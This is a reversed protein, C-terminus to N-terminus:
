RAAHEPGAGVNVESRLRFDVYPWRHIGREQFTDFILDNIPRIENWAYLGAPPQGELIVTIRIAPEGRADVYLESEMTAIRPATRIPHDEVYALAKEVAGVEEPDAPTGMYRHLTGRGPFLRADYPPPTRDTAEVFWGTFADYFPDHRYGENGPARLSDLIARNSPVDLV